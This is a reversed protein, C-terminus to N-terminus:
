QAMHRYFLLIEWLETTIHSLDTHAYVHRSDSSISYDGSISAPLDAPKPALSGAWGSGWSVIRLAPCAVRGGIGPTCRRCTVLYLQCACSFLFWWLIAVIFTRSSFFHYFLLLNCLKTFITYKWIIFYSGYLIAQVCIWMGLFLGALNWLLGISLKPPFCIKSTRVSLCFSLPIMFHKVSTAPCIYWIFLIIAHLCFELIFRRCKLFFLSLFGYSTYM